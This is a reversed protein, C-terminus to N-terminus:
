PASGGSVFVFFIIEGNRPGWHGTGIHGGGVQLYKIREAQRFSGDLVQHYSTTIRQSQFGESCIHQCGQSHCVPTTVMHFLVGLLGVPRIDFIIFSLIRDPTGPETAHGFNHFRKVSILDQIPRSLWVAVPTARMDSSTSCGRYSDRSPACIDCVRLGM